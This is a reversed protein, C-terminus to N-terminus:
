LKYAAVQEVQGMDRFGCKRYITEAVPDSVLLYLGRGGQAIFQSQMHRILATACGQGRYKPLTRINEVRALDGQYFLFGTAAPTGGKRVLYYQVHPHAFEREFTQGIIEPGGWAKEGALICLAEAKNHAEVKEITVGPRVILPGSVNSWMMVLFPDAKINYGAMALHGRIEPPCSFQNIYIRPVLQRQRYFTEIEETVQPLQRVTTNIIEAHNSDHHGANDRNVFLLGWPRTEMDSIIAFYGSNHELLQPLM